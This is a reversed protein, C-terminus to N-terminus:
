QNELTGNKLEFTYTHIVKRMPVRQITYNEPGVFGSDVWSKCVKSLSLKALKYGVGKLVYVM